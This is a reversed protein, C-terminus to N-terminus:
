TRPRNKKAISEHYAGVLATSLAPDNKVADLLMDGALPQGDEGGIEIDSVDVLVADLLTVGDPQELLQDHPMVKFAATFSGTQEKGREDYVTLNVPQRYTRQTNLKFM